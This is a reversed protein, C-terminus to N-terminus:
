LDQQPWLKIRAATCVLILCLILLQRGYKKFADFFGPGAQIGITFIFLLLGITQFAPPVTFNYHGLLLAVFIVASLDLSFGKFRINGLMIGLSIILFLVFYGEFFLASM